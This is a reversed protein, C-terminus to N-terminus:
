LHDLRAWAGDLESKAKDAWAMTPGAGDDPVSAEADGQRGNWWFMDFSTARADGDGEEAELAEAESQVEAITSTALQMALAGVVVIAVFSAFLILDSVASSPTGSVAQQAVVGIYADLAYPKFSGVFTGAVYDLIGVTGM